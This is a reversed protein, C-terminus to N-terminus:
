RYAVTEHATKPNCNPFLEACFYSQWALVLILIFLACPQNMISFDLFSTVQKTWKPTLNVPM